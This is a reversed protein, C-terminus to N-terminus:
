RLKYKNIDILSVEGLLEAEFLANIRKISDKSLRLSKDSILPILTNTLAYNRSKKEKAEKDSDFSYIEEEDLSAFIDDLYWSGNYKSCLWYNIVKNGNQNNAAIRLAVYGYDDRYWADKLEFSASDFLTDIAMQSCFAVIDETLVDDKEDKTKTAAFAKEYDGLAMYDEASKFIKPVFIVALTALLIVAATIVAITVVKKKAPSKKRGAAANGALAVKQGCNPCFEQGKQLEAGCKACVGREPAKKPAGCKPCFTQGAELAAGCNACVDAASTRREAFSTNEEYKNM